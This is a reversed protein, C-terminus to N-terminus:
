PEPQRNKRRRITIGGYRNLLEPLKRRIARAGSVYVIKTHGSASTVVEFIPNKVPPTVGAEPIHVYGRVNATPHAVAVVRDTWNGDITHVLDGDHHDFVGVHGAGIGFVVADGAVPQMTAWGHQRAWDLLAYAGAGRYPIKLGAEKSCWQWFAVCWPWGAAGPRPPTLWTCAQYRRVDVGNNSGLPEERVGRAAERRALTIAREHLPYQRQSEQAQQQAEVPM